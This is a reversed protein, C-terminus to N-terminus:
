GVLRGRLVELDLLLMVSGDGTVVGAVVARDQGAPPEDIAADDVTQVGVVEDVLLGFALAGDEVVLVHKGQSGLVSLVSLAGRGSTAPAAEDRAEPTVESRAAESGLQSRAATVPPEPPAAELPLLGVVGPRPAPLPRLGTALRVERVQEVPLACEGSPTRFRVVTSM